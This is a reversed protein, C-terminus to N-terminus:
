LGIIYYTGIYFQTYNRTSINWIYGVAGLAGGRCAAPSLLIVCNLHWMIM